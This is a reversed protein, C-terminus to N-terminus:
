PSKTAELLLKIGFFFCCRGTCAALRHACAAGPDRTSPGHGGSSPLAPSLLSRAGPHGGWRQLLPLFCPSPSRFCTLVPRNSARELGDGRSHKKNKGGLFLLSCSQPEQRPTLALNLGEAATDARALGRDSGPVLRKRAEGRVASRPHPLQPHGEDVAGGGGRLLTVLEWHPLARPSQRRRSGGAPINQPTCVQRTDYILTTLASCQGPEGFAM